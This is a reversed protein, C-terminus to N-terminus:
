LSKAQQYILAAPRRRLGALGLGLGLLALTGPEPVTVDTIEDPEPNQRPTIGSLNSGREPFGDPGVTIGGAAEVDILTFDGELLKLETGLLEEIETAGTNTIEDLGTIVRIYDGPDSARLDLTITGGSVTYSDYAGEGLNELGSYRVIDYKIDDAGFLSNSGSLGSSSHIVAVISSGFTISANITQQNAPDFAILHSSYGSQEKEQFAYITDNKDFSNNGITTVTLNTEVSPDYSLISSQATSMVCLAVSALCCTSIMKNM